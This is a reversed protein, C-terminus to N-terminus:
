KDDGPNVPSVLPDGGDMVRETAKRAIEPLLDMTRQMMGAGMQDYHRGRKDTGIFGFEVRRAYVVPNVILLRDGIRLSAIVLEPTQVRSPLPVEDNNKVVTWNARLFGTRVPTFSKVTNIADLATAQFAADALGRARAVYKEVDLSFSDSM